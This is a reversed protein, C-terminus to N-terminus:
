KELHFELSVVATICKEITSTDYVGYGSVDTSGVPTIQFIGQAANKLSGVKGGSNAALTNARELGNRTAETLLKVKIQELDKVIFGPSGSSVEMGNKILDTFKRSFGDVPAVNDSKIRVLQSLVYKEIENTQTNGNTNDLKYIMSIDVSEFSYETESFGENKLFAEVATRDRELAAYAEKLDANRVKFSGTWTAQDSTINSKAYGKVEIVDDKKVRVIASSVIYASLAFGFALTAGLLFM